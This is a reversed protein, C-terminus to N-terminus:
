WRRRRHWATETTHDTLLEPQGLRRSRAMPPPINPYPISLAGRSRNPQLFRLLFFDIL